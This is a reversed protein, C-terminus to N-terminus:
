RQRYLDDPRDIGSRRPHRLDEGAAAGSEVLAQRAEASLYMVGKGDNVSYRWDIGYQGRCEIGAHPGKDLKVKVPEAEFRIVERRTAM